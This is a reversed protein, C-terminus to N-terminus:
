FSNIKRVQNYYVNETRKQIERLVYNGDKPHPYISLLTDGEDLYYAKFIGNGRTVWYKTNSQCIFYALNDIAGPIIVRIQEGEM